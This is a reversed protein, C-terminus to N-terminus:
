GGSLAQMITIEDPAIATALDRTMDKNVFVKMHQRLRGQEDVVRFRIGPYSGTSTPWCRPWRTARRGRGRSARRHVLAAADPHAGEDAGSRRWRSRTSRPCTSPSRPGTAGEDASAWVEGSTTGFYVGVPDGADVTMAQRKVTFWAASPCGATAAPGRSAPTAPSTRPRGATPAPARGCTPATWRSCGRRTPIARTCSSRSASTASTPPMNDGIREWRGDPRDMRYIGCHNQQYLRDPRLPHLRVCHPDHGFEPDPDPFFTAECGANLPQWDSGGDTSEFVGGGSLGLYLHAADRPDVICRTSCRATPRTRRPGSPGRRGCRTITGARRGAGVHRRRGRHPVPGAAIRRRVLRRARRCPRADALVGRRSRRASDSAPAFRRASAVGRDVDAWTPRASCPRVSTVPASAACCRRATARTSCRRAPRHPRPLAARPRGPPGRRRRGRPPVRGQPHRGAVDDDRVTASRRIRGDAPNRRCATSSRQHCDSITSSTATRLRKLRAYVCRIPTSDSDYRSVQAAM